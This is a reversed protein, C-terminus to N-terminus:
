KGSAVVRAGSGNFYVAQIHGMQIDSYFLQQNDFEFALGVANKILNRDSIPPNPANPDPKESIRAFELRRSVSYAM